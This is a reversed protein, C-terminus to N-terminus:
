SFLTKLGPQSFLTNDSVSPHNFEGQSAIVQFYKTVNRHETCDISLWLLGRRLFCANKNLNIGYSYCFGILLMLM